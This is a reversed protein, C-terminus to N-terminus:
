ANRRRSNPKDKAITIQQEKRVYKNYAEEQSMEWFEREIDVSINVQKFKWILETQGFHNTGVMKKYKKINEPTFEDTYVMKTGIPASNPKDIRQGFTDSDPDNDTIRPFSQKKSLGIYEGSGKTEIDDESYKRRVSAFICDKGDQQARVINLAWWDNDTLKKKAM